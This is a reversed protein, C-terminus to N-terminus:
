CSPHMPFKWTTKTKWHTTQNPVYNSSSSTSGEGQIHSLIWWSTINATVYQKGCSVEERFEVLPCHFTEWDFKYIARKVARSQLSRNINVEPQFYQLFKKRKKTTQIITVYPHHQLHLFSTRWHPSNEYGSGRLFPIIDWEPSRSLPLRSISDLLIRFFTTSKASLQWICFLFSLTTLNGNCTSKLM